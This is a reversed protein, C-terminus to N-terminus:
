GLENLAEMLMLMQEPTRKISLTEEGYEITGNSWFWFGDFVILDAYVEAGLEKAREKLEEWTM